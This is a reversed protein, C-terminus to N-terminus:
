KKVKLRSTDTKNEFSKIVENLDKGLMDISVRADDTLPHDPYRAIFQEYYERAKALDNVQTEYIFAQLFISYPVQPHRPYNQQLKQLYFLAQKPAKVAMALEGAKFLYTGASTDQPYHNVYSEYKDLLEFASKTELTMANASLTEEMKRIEERLVANQGTKQKCSSVPLLMVACLILQFRKM